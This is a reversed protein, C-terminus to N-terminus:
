ATLIGDKDFDLTGFLESNGKWEKRSIRNDVPKIDMTYVLRNFIDEPLPSATKGHQICGAVGYEQATIFGDGNLDVQEFTMQNKWFDQMGEYESRSIRYDGNTDNKLLYRGFDDVMQNYIGNYADTISLSDAKTLIGDNNFDLLDFLESKGKWEERSIQKDGNTDMTHKLQYLFNGLSSPKKHQIRGDVSFEEVKVFEDRILIGDKDFDLLDFLESKGNWEERSIRGDGNTDMTRVLQNFFDDPSSPEGHRICGAVGYEEPTIFGNRNLDVQEFTMQSGWLDQSGHMGLITPGATLVIRGILMSTLAILVAKRVGIWDVTAGLLFMALTIGATQIGVMLGAQVDNLGVYQNFYLALLGVVGFYTIGELVYSVNVGTLAQPTKTLDLFPQILERFISRKSKKVM